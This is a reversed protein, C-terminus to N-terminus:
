AWPVEAKETSGPAPRRGGFLEVLGKGSAEAKRRIDEFLYYAWHAPDDVRAASSWAALGAAFERYSVKGDGNVDLVAAVKRADAATLERAGLAHLGDLLEDTSLYNSGDTDLVKFCRFISGGDNLIHDRVVAQVREVLRHSEQWGDQGRQLGARDGEGLDGELVAAGLADLDVRPEASGANLGSKAQLQKAPKAEILFAAALAMAEPARLGLARGQAFGLFAALEAARRGEVLACPMVKALDTVQHKAMFIGLGKVSARVEPSM